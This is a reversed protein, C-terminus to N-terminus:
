FVTGDATIPIPSPGLPPRREIAIKRGAHWTGGQMLQALTFSPGLGLRERVLVLLDDLLNVTLARWEVVLESSVDQPVEIPRRPRIVGLDVLLGGNRYEALGTLGDMDAVTLGFDTLPEILSYALWQTLKHFPVIRDTLGGSRVASHYGADGVKVGDVVLASPWIPTFSDLLISLLLAAPIQPGRQEFYEVLCGPRAEEGFLDSRAALAHGLRQLLEARQQLGVLPNNGNIQFGETLKAPDIMKLAAADVQLPRDQRSSFLGAAFMDFSAVALGESRALVLGTAPERYRWQDGAGADLLVSVTALDIAVRAREHHPISVCHRLLRAWRDIGGTTFHRWRSHPPIRLDPYAARTVDAVCDAVESLAQLELTFYQSQGATVWERVMRCRERVAAGGRLGNTAARLREDGNPSRAKTLGVASM